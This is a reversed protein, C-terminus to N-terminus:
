HHTLKQALLHFVYYQTFYAFIRTKKSVYKGTYARPNQGYVPFTLESFVKIIAYRICHGVSDIPLRLYMMRRQQVQSFETCSVGFKNCHCRGTCKKKCGCTVTYMEPLKIICKDIILASDVLNWGFKLPNLNTDPALILNSCILVPYHSRLIHRHSM